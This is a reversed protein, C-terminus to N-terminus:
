GECWKLRSRWGSIGSSVPSLIRLLVTAGPINTFTGTIAPASQLNFSANTSKLV